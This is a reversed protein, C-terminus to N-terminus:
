ADIIDCFLFYVFASFILPYKFHYLKFIFFEHSFETCAHTIKTKNEFLHSKQKGLIVMLFIYLVTIYSSNYSDIPM